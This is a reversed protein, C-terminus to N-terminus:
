LLDPQQAMTERASQPQHQRVWDLFADRSALAPLCGRRSAAVYLAASYAQCSFSRQPNFEIDTFGQYQLLTAALQPHQQLTQLYLWDYFASVPQLPWDTGFFRFGLLRGSSQLREDQKATRADCDLLDLYPGGQEFVKSSQFASELSFSRGKRTTITLNFASAAVGEPRESKSSVELLAGLGAASAAAHLREVNKRKQSPALGAAWEFELLRAEVLLPGHTQPLYVPRSAM